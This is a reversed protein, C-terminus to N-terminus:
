KYKSVRYGRLAKVMLRDTHVRMLGSMIISNRKQLSKARNESVVGAAGKLQLKNVKYLTDLKRARGLASNGKRTYAKARRSARVFIPM